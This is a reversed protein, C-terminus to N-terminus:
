NTIIPFPQRREGDRDEEVENDEGLGEVDVGGRWEEGEKNEM